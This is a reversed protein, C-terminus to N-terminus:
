VRIYECSDCINNCVKLDLYFEGVVVSRLMGKYVITRSSLTCFYFDEYKALLIKIQREVLKRGVYLQRELDDGTKGTTSEM